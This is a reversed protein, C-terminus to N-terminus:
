TIKGYGTVIKTGTLAILVNRIEADVVTPLLVFSQRKLPPDKNAPLQIAAEHM